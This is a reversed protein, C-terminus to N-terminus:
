PVMRKLHALLLQRGEVVHLEPNEFGADGLWASYQELTWTGGSETNVLMNVGFVAAAPSTGRIFDVIAVRGGPSLVAAVKRFLERNEPEGFIHCINGLFALDFPGPPLAVNFDGPVMEIGETGSLSPGMLDVVEPLDLVTVRAGLSAFARAYTLPGGGVDLVRIGKGCGKLCFDAVAPASQRAGYIMADMFYKTNEPGKERPRPQGSRIVEPLHVWSNIINYRHMFSFGLYNPAERNYLMATAEESLRLKGGERVLYGLAALAETVVWVARADAKIARALEEADMHRKHLSGIIGTKVAAGLILLEQPVVLVSENPM